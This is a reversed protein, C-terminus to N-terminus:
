VTKPIPNPLGYIKVHNILSTEKQQAAPSLENGSWEETMLHTHDVKGSEASQALRSLAAALFRLGKANGHIFLQDSDQDLEFTLLHKPM